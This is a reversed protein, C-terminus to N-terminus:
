FPVVWNLGPFRGFDNDLSVWQCGWEMALAAWWADQVLNGALNLELCLREFIPWHRLGPYVPTANPQSQLVACFNLADSIETPELFIRRNTVLRVVAGLIQPSVAYASPGNILVELWALAQGHQQSDVRVAHVLINVDCLKM